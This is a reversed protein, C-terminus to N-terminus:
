AGAGRYRWICSDLSCWHLGPDYRYLFVQHVSRGPSIHRLDHQFGTRVITQSLLDRGGAASSFLLSVAQLTSLVPLPLTTIQITSGVINSVVFM